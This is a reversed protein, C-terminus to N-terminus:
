RLRPPSRGDAAAALRPVSGPGALGTGGWPTGSQGAMHTCVLHGPWSSAVRAAWQRGNKSGGPKDETSVRLAEDDWQSDRVFGLNLSFIHLIELRWFCLMLGLTSDMGLAAGRTVACTARGRDLGAWLVSELGREM